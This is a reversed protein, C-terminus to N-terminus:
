GAKVFLNDNSLVGVKKAIHSHVGNLFKEFEAATFDYTDEPLTNIDIQVQLAGDPVAATPDNSRM